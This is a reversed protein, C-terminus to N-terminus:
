RLRTRSTPSRTSSFTLSRLAHSSPPPLLSTPPPSPAPSLSLSLHSALRLTHADRCRAAAAAAAARTTLTASHIKVSAVITLILLVVYFRAIIHSRPNELMINLRQRKGLGEKFLDPGSLGVMLDPDVRERSAMVRGPSPMVRTMAREFTSARRSSAPEPAPAPGVASAAAAMSPAPM